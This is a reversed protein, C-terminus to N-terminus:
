RMTSSLLRRAVTFEGCPLAVPPNDALYEDVRGILGEYCIICSLDAMTTERHGRHTQHVRGAGM